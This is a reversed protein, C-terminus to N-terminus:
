LVSALYAIGVQACSLPSTKTLHLAPITRLEKLPTSSKKALYLIFRWDSHGQLSTAIFSLDHHIERVSQSSEISIISLGGLIDEPFAFWKPVGAANSYDTTINNWTAAPSM